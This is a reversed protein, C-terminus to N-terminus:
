LDRTREAIFKECEDRVVQPIIAANVFPKDKDRAHMHATLRQQLPSLRPGTYRHSFDERHIAFCGTEVEIEDIRDNRVATAKGDTDPTTAPSQSTPLVPAFAIALKTWVRSFLNLRHM